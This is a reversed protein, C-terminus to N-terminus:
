AIFSRHKNKSMGKNHCIERNNGTDMKYKRFVLLLHGLADLPDLSGSMFGSHDHMFTSVTEMEWCCVCKQVTDITRTKACM